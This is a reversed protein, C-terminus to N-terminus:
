AQNRESNYRELDEPIGLPIFKDVNFPFIKKGDEIMLNYVPSLFFEGNVKTGMEMMKKAYVVFDRTSRFMYHGTHAWYSVPTKEVIKEITYEESRMISRGWKNEGNPEYFHFLIGDYEFYSVFRLFSQTNFEILQDCNLILLQENLKMRECAQVASYAAGFQPGELNVINYFPIPSTIGYETKTAVFVNVNLHAPLQSILNWAVVRWMPIGEIEILPKPPYGKDQFRQGKGAALLLINM